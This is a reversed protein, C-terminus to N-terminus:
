KTALPVETGKAKKIEYGNSDKNEQHWNSAPHITPFIKLCSIYQPNKADKKLLSIIFDPSTM